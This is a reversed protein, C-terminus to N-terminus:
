SQGWELALIILFVVFVNSVNHNNDDKITSGNYFLSMIHYMQQTLSIGNESVHTEPDM